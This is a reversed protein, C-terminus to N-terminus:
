KVESMFPRCDMSQWFGSFKGVSASLEFLSNELVELDASGISSNASRRGKQTFGGDALLLGQITLSETSISRLTDAVLSEIGSELLALAKNAKHSLKSKRSHPGVHTPKVWLRLISAIQCVRERSHTVELQGMIAKFLLRLAQDSFRVSASGSSIDNAAISIDMACCDLLQLLLTVHSANDSFRTLLKPLSHVVCSVLQHWDALYTAAVDKEAGGTKRKRKVGIGDTEDDEDYDEVHVAASTPTHDNQSHDHKWQYLHIASCVFFRLVTSIHCDQLATTILNDSERLLLSVFTDWDRM